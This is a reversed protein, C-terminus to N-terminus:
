HHDNNPSKRGLARHIDWAHPLRERLAEPKPEPSDSSVHVHDRLAWSHGLCVDPLGLGMRISSLGLLWASGVGRREADLNRDGRWAVSLSTVVPALPWVSGGLEQHFRQEVAKSARM